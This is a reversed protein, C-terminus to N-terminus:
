DHNGKEIRVEKTETVKNDTQKWLKRIVNQKKGARELKVQIHDEDLRLTM